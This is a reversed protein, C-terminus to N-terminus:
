LGGGYTIKGIHKGKKKRLINRGLLIREVKDFDEYSLGEIELTYIDGESRGKVCLSASGNIFVSGGGGMFGVAVSLTAFDVSCLCMTMDVYGKEELVMAIATGVRLLNEATLPYVGIEGRLTNNVFLKNM